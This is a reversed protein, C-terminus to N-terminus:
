QQDIILWNRALAAHRLPKTPRVAVPHGVSELLPIDTHQDAYAYSAALDINERRAFNEAAAKKYHGILLPGETRGTCRGQEDVELKSCILHPFKLDAAVLRLYYDVSASLLVLTHGLRRHEEVRALMAPSLAPKLWHEYFDPAGEIFEQLKRGRYYDLCIETMTTISLRNRKYLQGALIVKLLFLPSVLKHEWLYKFGIEPSDKVLLTKDFDFFAAIKLDSM